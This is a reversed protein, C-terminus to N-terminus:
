SNIDENKGGIFGIPIRKFAKRIAAKDVANPVSHFFSNQDTLLAYLFRRAIFFKVGRYQYRLPIFM